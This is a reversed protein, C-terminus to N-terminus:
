FLSFIYLTDISYYQIITNSMINYLHVSYIKIDVMWIRLEFWRCQGDFLSRQWVDVSVTSFAMKFLLVDTGCLEAGTRYLVLKM